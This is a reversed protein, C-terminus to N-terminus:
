LVNMKKLYAGSTGKSIAQKNLCQLLPIDENCEDVIIITFSDEDDDDDDFATAGYQFLNFGFITSPLVLKPL